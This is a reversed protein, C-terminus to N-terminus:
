LDERRITQGAQKSAWTAYTCWNACTGLRRALATSLLHYSQTILLNRLVLDSMATIRDIEAVSPFGAPTEAAPTTEPSLTKPTMLTMRPRWLPSTMESRDRTGSERM